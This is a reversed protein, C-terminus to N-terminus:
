AQCPSHVVWLPVLDGLGQGPYHSCCDQGTGGDGWMQKVWSQRLRDGQRGGAGRM